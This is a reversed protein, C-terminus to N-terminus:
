NIAQGSGKASQSGTGTLQGIVAQLEEVGMTVDARLNTDKIHGADLLESLNSSIAGIGATLRATVTSDAASHSQSILALADATDKEVEAIVNTVLPLDKPDVQAIIRKALPAAFSLATGAKQLVSQTRGFHRAFFSEVARFFNGM